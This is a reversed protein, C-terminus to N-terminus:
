FIYPGSGQAAQANGGPSRAAAPHGTAAVAALTGGLLASVAAAIVLILRGRYIRRSLAARSITPLRMVMGTGSAERLKGSRESMGIISKPSIQHCPSGRM